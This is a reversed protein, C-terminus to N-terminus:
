GLNGIKRVGRKTEIVLYCKRRVSKCSYSMNSYDLFVENSM